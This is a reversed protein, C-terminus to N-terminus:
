TRKIEKDRESGAMGRISFKRTSRKEGFQVSQREKKSQESKKVTSRGLLLRYKDTTSGLAQVVTDQEPFKRRHWHM